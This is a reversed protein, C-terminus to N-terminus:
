IKRIMYPFISSFAQKLYLVLLLAISIWPRLFLFVGPPSMMEMRHHIANIEYMCSNFLTSQPYRTFLVSLFIFWESHLSSYFNSSLLSSIQFIFFLTFIILLSILIFRPHCFHALKKFYPKYSLTLFYLQPPGRFAPGSFHTYTNLSPLL